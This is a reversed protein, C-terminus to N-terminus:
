TLGDPSDLLKVHVGDGKKVRDIEEPIVALGNAKVMSSLIGSGQPGTVKAHYTGNRVTVKVRIFYTLGKKKTIDDDIIAQVTPQTTNKRGCLKWVAPRVFQEFCVMSSVPNGPLGFIPRSDFVAFVVPKGPRIAVKWFKIEAGIEKLIDKVLDYKGVSVGGTILLMDNELGQKFKKKLESPNDKVFGLDLPMGGNSGIYASLMISNSNRVQGPAVNDNIDVLENGTALIAINPKKMVEIKNIGLSALMAIEAPRILKGKSIILDGKKVDEGQERINEGIGISRSIEVFEDGNESRSKTEEVKVVSDAGKPVPAGTMIRMAETHNLIKQSCHGAPIEDVIKLIVPNNITANKTDESIIAYGDMASNNFSPLDSDTKVDQALTRGLSNKLEITDIDKLPFVSDLIVKLANDATLM